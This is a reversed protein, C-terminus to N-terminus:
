IDQWLSNSDFTSNPTALQRLCLDILHCYQNIWKGYSNHKIFQCIATKKNACVAPYPGIAMYKLYISFSLKGNSNSNVGDILLAWAFHLCYLPHFYFFISIFPVCGNTHIVTSFKSLVSSFSSSEDSFNMSITYRSCARVDCVSHKWKTWSLMYKKNTKGKKAAFLDPPKKPCTSTGFFIQPKFNNLNEKSNGVTFGQTSKTSIQTM